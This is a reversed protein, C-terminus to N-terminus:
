RGIDPDWLVGNNGSNWFRYGLDWFEAQLDPDPPGPPGVPLVLDDFWENGPYTEFPDSSMCPQDNDDYPGDWLAGGPVVHHHVCHVSRGSCTTGGGSGYLLFELDGYPLGYYAAPQSEALVLTSDVLASYGEDDLVTWFAYAGAEVGLSNTCEPHAFMGDPRINDGACEALDIDGETLFQFWGAETSTPLRLGLDALVQSDRIERVDGYSLGHDPNGDDTPYASSPWTPFPARLICFAEVASYGANFLWRYVDAQAADREEQSGGWTFSSGSGPVYVMEALPCRPDVAEGPYTYPRWDGWNVNEGSAGDGDPSSTRFGPWSDNVPVCAPTTTAVMFIALIMCFFGKWSM